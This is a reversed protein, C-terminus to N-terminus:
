TLPTVSVECRAGTLMLMSILEGTTLKDIKGGLVHRIVKPTTKLAAAIEVQPLKMRMIRNRLQTMLQARVSVEAIEGPCSLHDTWANAIIKKPRAMKMEKVNIISKGM